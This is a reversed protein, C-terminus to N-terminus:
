IRESTAAALKADPRHYSSAELDKLMVLEPALAAKVVRWIKTCHVPALGIHRRFGTVDDVIREYPLQRRIHSLQRQAPPM